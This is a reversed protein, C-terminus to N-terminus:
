SSDFKKPSAVNYDSLGNSLVNLCIQYSANPAMNYDFTQIGTDIYTTGDSQLYEVEIVSLIRKGRFDTKDLCEDALSHHKGDIFQRKGLWISDGCTTFWNYSSLPVSSLLHDESAAEQISPEEAFYM